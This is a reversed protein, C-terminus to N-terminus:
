YCVLVQYTANIVEAMEAINLTEITDTEKHYNKNRYFSTDTIMLADIGINWYNLHDSFDIGPLSRPAAFKKTRILKTKKYNQIFRKVFKGASSKRVLTIYNGKGGYFWKLIGLPYEQSNKKDSFYGIMEISIMGLVQDKIPEISKAHIASGMYDTRFFPPEELTYAVLDIRNKLEKGKLMRSLELLAVTGSGNDDAGEQNGCVDYHAGVIIRKQNKRGFVAIVNRYTTGNARYTQYYVTDASKEFERHIYAAVSDLVEPNAFHRAKERKTITTLHQRLLITDCKEQAFIISEKVTFNILFFIIM